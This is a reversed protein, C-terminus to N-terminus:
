SRLGTVDHREALWGSVLNLSVVTVLVTLAAYLSQQPFGELISGQGAAVMVGWDATPPQLGLGLYSIAALDLMAYAFGIGAQVLILPMLNPLVHRLLIRPVSVGQIHLAAVYPLNRERVAVSRMVRAVMPVYGVSLAVVPAWFGAGFVAVAVVALVLGPFAFLVEIIRSIVADAWGGCWAAVLALAVGVTMSFVIVLSPGALSIRAGFLLRSAIDRGSADTGLLHQASSGAYSSALDIQDPDYPAIVPALVAAAVMLVLFTAAVLVVPSVRALRGFMLPRSRGLVALPASM